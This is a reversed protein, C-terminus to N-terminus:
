VWFLSKIHERLTHKKNMENRFEIGREWKGEENNRNLEKNQKKIESEEKTKKVKKPRTIIIEEWDRKDGKDSM